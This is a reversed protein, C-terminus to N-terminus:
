LVWGIVVLQHLMLINSGHVRRTRQIETTNVQIISKRLGNGHVCSPM